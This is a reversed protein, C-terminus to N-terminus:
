SLFPFPFPVDKSPSLLISRMLAWDDEYSYNYKSSSELPSIGLIKQSYDFADGGEIQVYYRTGSDMELM